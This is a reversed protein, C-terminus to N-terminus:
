LYSAIEEVSLGTFESFDNVSVFQDKRKNRTQRVKGLLARCYRIDRGTIRQVDKPYIILRKLKM